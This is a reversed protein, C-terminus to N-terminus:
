RRRSKQQRWQRPPLPQDDRWLGARRERAQRERAKWGECFPARCFYEYYWAMGQELQRENLSTDEGEAFVVAVVRGYQDEDMPAVTLIKGKAMGLLNRRSAQGYAQDSEPADVGYLRLEQKQGSDVRRVTFSDGDAAHLLRAQWRASGSLPQSSSAPSSSSARGAPEARDSAPFIWSLLALLAAALPLGFRPLRTM